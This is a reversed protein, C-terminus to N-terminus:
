ASITPADPDHRPQNLQKITPSNLTRTPPLDDQRQFKKVAEALPKDYGEGDGSIGLRHRVLPVRSDHMGPKLVPGSGIRAPGGTDGHRTRPERLQPRLAM